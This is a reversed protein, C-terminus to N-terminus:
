RVTQIRSPRSGVDVTWHVTLERKLKGFPVKAPQSIASLQYLRLKMGGGAGAARTSEQGTNYKTEGVWDSGFKNKKLSLM